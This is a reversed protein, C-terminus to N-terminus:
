EQQKLRKRKRKTKQNKIYIVKAPKFSTFEEKGMREKKKLYLKHEKVLEELRESVRRKAGLFFLMFMVLCFAAVILLGMIIFLGNGLGDM